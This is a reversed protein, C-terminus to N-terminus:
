YLEEPSFPKAMYADAGRRLGTLRSAADAKATLLIIPIHSTHEDNKLHDLVQFGDMVPMMVDSIILDPIYNLAKDVGAKGDFAVNIQYVPELCSKLYDVVDPNDEIILLQSISENFSAQQDRSSSADTITENQQRIMP